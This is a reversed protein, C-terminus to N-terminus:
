GPPWSMERGALLHIHLHHITEGALAGNNIVLRYSPIGNERAFATATLLLNAVIGADTEGMSAIHEIKRKPVVLVHVPAQPNIDKIVVTDDTEMLIEAPVERDIIKEFITKSESM